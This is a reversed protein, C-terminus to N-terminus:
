APAEWTVQGTTRDTLTVLGANSVRLTAPGATTGSSWKVRGYADASVLDGDATLQTWSAAAKTSWLVKKGQKLQLGTRAQTLTYKKNPSALSKGALLAKGAALQTSSVTASPAKLAQLSFVLRHPWNTSVNSIADSTSAKVLADQVQAPTADPHSSLYLAAVGTVHPTAMSTGDLIETATDSTNWDSTIDVGPAYVDVCSGYNSFPARADTETSAGVTIAAGVDAPSVDCAPVGNGEADGNGAAVVVTVGADIVRQVADEVVQDTGGDNALSLNAVAPTGSSEHDSVVWDLGAAVADDTSSGDCDLVRVPVLTVEKAVGYVTGGITGAVHTGHGSDQDAGTDDSCGETGHSDCGLTDDDDVPLVCTGGVVRSAEPTGDTDTTFDRSTSRIGTDVVYATVGAGTNQFFYSRGASRTRQDIRALGWDAGSQTAGVGNPQVTTTAVRFVRDTQVYAVAPDSRVAALASASLKASYGSFAHSYQRVVRGGAADARRAQQAVFTSTTSAAGIGSTRDPLSVGAARLATGDKLVVLYRGPIAGAAHAGVLPAVSSSSSPTAGVLRGAPQDSPTTAASATGALAPTLLAAAGLGALACFLPRLRSSRPQRTM